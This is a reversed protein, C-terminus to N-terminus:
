APLNRQFRALRLKYEDELCRAGTAYSRDLPGKGFQGVLDWLASYFEDPMTGKLGMVLSCIGDIKFSQRDITILPEPGGYKWFSCADIAQWFAQVLDKPLPDGHEM